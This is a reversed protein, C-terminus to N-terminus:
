TLQFEPLSTLYRIFNNLLFGAEPQDLNWEYWPVGALFIKALDREHQPASTVAPPLPNGELDGAFDEAPANLDLVALPTPLLHEAMAVALDFVSAPTAPDVGDRQLLLTALPRLNLGDQTRDGFLISQTVLWRLPMTTTNLWAHHGEWGAVNPPDLLSQQLLFATRNLQLFVNPPLEGLHLESLFGALMAVPSKVQAGIVQEDFFHASKLLARVVPAIAFDNARMVQALEAVLAEDPAEYIFARYLKRCLFAAIQEPREEF